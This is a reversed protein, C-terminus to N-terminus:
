VGVPRAKLIGCGSKAITEPVPLSSCMARGSLSSSSMRSQDCVNGDSPDGLFRLRAIQRCCYRRCGLFFALGTLIRRRVGKRSAGKRSAVITKSAQWATTFRLHAVPVKRLGGIEVKLGEGTVHDRVTLSDHAKPRSMAGKITGFREECIFYRLWDHVSLNGRARITRPRIRTLDQSMGTQQQIPRHSLSEREDDVM